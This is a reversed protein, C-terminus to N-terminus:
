EIVKAIALLRASFDVNQRRAQPLHVHITPRSAELLFGLVAGSAVDAALLSMTLLNQGTLAAAISGVVDSLGPTLVVIGVRDDSCKRALADADTYDHRTASIAAGAIDDLAELETKVQMAAAASASDGKRRVILVRCTGGMRDPANRDYKVVRAMLEVQLPIPVDVDAARARGRGGIWVLAGALAVLVRRRTPRATSPLRLRM